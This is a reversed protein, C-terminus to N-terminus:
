PFWFCSNICQSDKPAILYHSSYVCALIQFIFPHSTWFCTVDRYLTAASHKEKHLMKFVFCWGFECLMMCWRSSIKELKSEAKRERNKSRSMIRGLKEEQTYQIPVVLRPLISVRCPHSKKTLLCMWPQYFLDQVMRYIHFGISNPYEEYWTTCSNLLDVLLRYNLDKRINVARFFNPASSRVITTYSITHKIHKGVEKFISCFFSRTM